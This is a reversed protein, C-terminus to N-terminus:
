CCAKLQGTIRNLGLGHRRGTGFPTRPLCALWLCAALRTTRSAGLADLVAGLDYIAALTAPPGAATANMAAM